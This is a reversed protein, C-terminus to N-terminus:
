VILLLLIVAIIHKFVYHEKPAAKVSVMTEMSPDHGFRKPTYRYTLKAARYKVMLVTAKRSHPSTRVRMAYTPLEMIWTVLTSKRSSYTQQLLELKRTYLSKIYTGRAEIILVLPLSVLWVLVRSIIMLGMGKLLSSRSLIVIM